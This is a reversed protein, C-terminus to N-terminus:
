HKILLLRLVLRVSGISVGPGIGRLFIADVPLALPVGALPNQGLGIALASSRVVVMLTLYALVALAEHAHWLVLDVQEGRLFPLLHSINMRFSLLWASM